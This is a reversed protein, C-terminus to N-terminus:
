LNRSRRPNPFPTVKTQRPHHAAPSCVDGVVFLQRRELLFDLLSRVQTPLSKKRACIHIDRAAWSEALPRHTLRGSLQYSVALSKPIVTVGLGEAVICKAVENSEVQFRLALRHGNRRAAKRMHVLVSSSEHLGVLNHKVLEEFTVEAQGALCHGEPMLVVLEDSMYSYSVLDDPLKTDRAFIGLDAVGTGVAHLVDENHRELVAIEIEPHRDVYSAIEHSGGGILVSPICAVRIQGRHGKAHESLESRLHEVKEVIEAALEALCKGAPTPRTERPMRYLLQVDFLYELDQMRKTVASAVIGEKAAALSISKEECISLFLRLSLLDLKSITHKLTHLAM